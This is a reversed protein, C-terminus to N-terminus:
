MIYFAIYKKFWSVHRELINVTQSVEGLPIRLLSYNQLLFLLLVDRGDGGSCLRTIPICLRSTPTM